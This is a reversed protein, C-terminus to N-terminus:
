VIKHGLSKQVFELDMSDIISSGILLSSVPTPPLVPDKKTPPNEEVLNVKTVVSEKISSVDAAVNDIKASLPFSTKYLLHPFPFPAFFLHLITAEM